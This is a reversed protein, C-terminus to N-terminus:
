WSDNIQEIGFGGHVEEFGGMGSGVHGNFDGGVLVKERRVVKNMLEYCEEKENVSKGAQPCYSSVIEWVVDGIVINVKIVRDNYKEVGLVKGTLWNAVIVGM